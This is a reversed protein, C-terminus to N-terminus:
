KGLLCVFRRTEMIDAVPHLMLQDTAPTEPHIGRSFDCSGHQSTAEGGETSESRTASFEGLSELRDKGGTFRRCDSNFYGSGGLSLSKGPFRRRIVSEDWEM